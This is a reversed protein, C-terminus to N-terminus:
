GCGVQVEWWGGVVEGEWGVQTRSRLINRGQLEAASPRASLRRELRASVRRRDAGAGGRALM